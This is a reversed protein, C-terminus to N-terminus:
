CPANSLGESELRNRWEAASQKTILTRRGLKSIKPGRGDKLIKYFLARSFGHEDCFQQVSYAEYAM